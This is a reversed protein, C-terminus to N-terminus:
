SQGGAKRAADWNTVYCPLCEFTGGTGESIGCLGVPEHDEWPRPGYYATRPGLGEESFARTPGVQMESGCERCPLVFWMQTEATTETNTNTTM